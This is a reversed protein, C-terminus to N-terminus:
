ASKRLEVLVQRAVAKLTEMVGTGEPAVAEFVPEGKVLLLKKLRDTPLANPLYTSCASTKEFQAAGRIGANTRILDIINVEPRVPRCLPIRCRYLHLRADLKSVGRRPSASPARKDSLFSGTRRM